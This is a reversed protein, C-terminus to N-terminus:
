PLLLWSTNQRYHLPWRLWWIEVRNLQQPLLKVTHYTLLAWWALGVQPLHKVFHPTFNRWIVEVFQSGFHWLDALSCNSCISFEKQLKFSLIIIEFRTLTKVKNEIRNQLSMQYIFTHTKWPFCSITQTVGFMQVTTYINICTCKLLNSYWPFTWKNWYNLEFLTVIICIWYVCVSTSKITIIKAWM